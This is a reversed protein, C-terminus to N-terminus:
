QLLNTNDGVQVIGNTLGQQCRTLGQQHCCWCPALLSLELLPCATVVGVFPLM